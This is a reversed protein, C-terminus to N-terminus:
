FKIADKVMRKMLKKFASSDFSQIYIRLLTFRDTLSLDELKRATREYNRAFLLRHDKSFNNRQALFRYFNRSAIDKQKQNDKKGTIHVASHRFYVEAENISYISNSNSFELWARDDSHWALHYNHFGYKKYSERRFIYESLSSRTKGYYRRLFAAEASEHLPHEYKHSLSGDNSLIRSAFRVVNSDREINGIHEYFAKVVNPSLIDDDGLIMIWSEDMIMDVCRDWHATLDEHGLNEEFRRYTLNLVSDYRGIIESPDEPSADDGIYLNFEGSEQQVLSDLTQEFFKKKYYPIVIALKFM